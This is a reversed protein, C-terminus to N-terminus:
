IRVWERGYALSRPSRTESSGVSGAQDSKIPGPLRSGIDPELMGVDLARDFKAVPGTSITGVGCSYCSGPLSWKLM